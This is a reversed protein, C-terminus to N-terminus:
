LVRRIAPELYSLETDEEQDQNYVITGTRDVLVYLPIAQVLFQQAISSNKIKTRESVNIWNLTNAAIRKKWIKVDDDLNFYVVELGQKQYKSYLVQLKKEASKCPVCWTASFAIVYPKGALSSNEFKEGNDKMLTFYPVTSGKLARKFARIEETRRKLFEIGLDSSRIKDSLLNFVAFPPELLRRMAGMRAIQYLQVLSYYENPYQKLIELQESYLRQQDANDLFRISGSGEVKKAFSKYFYKSVSDVSRHIKNSKSNILEVKSLSNSPYPDNGHVQEVLMLNSASDLM